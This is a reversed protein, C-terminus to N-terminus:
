GGSVATILAVEDGDALPRRGPAWEGGVAYRLGPPPDGTLPLYSWLDAAATEAPVRAQVRRRGARDSLAAFLLVTVTITQDDVANEVANVADDVADNM